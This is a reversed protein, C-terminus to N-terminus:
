RNGDDEAAPRSPDSRTKGTVANKPGTAQAPADSGPAGSAPKGVPKSRAAKTRRSVKLGSSAARAPGVRAPTRAASKRPTSKPSNSKPGNSKPGNSKPGNSKPGASKPGASKLNTARVDSRVRVAPGVDPEAAPGMAAYRRKRWLKRLARAFRDEKRGLAGFFEHDVAELVPLAQSLREM